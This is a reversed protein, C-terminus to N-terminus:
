NILRKEAMWKLSKTQWEDWMPSNVPLVMDDDQAHALFVPPTAGTVQKENSYFAVLESSPDPGLLNRKTGGHTLSGMTIVPYVLIAFDPRSSFWSVPDKAQPDGSDFHTAATSALHDGASFGMIGIRGPDHSKVPRHITIYANEDTFLGNGAPALGTWLPVTFPSFYNALLIDNFAPLNARYIAQHGAATPHQSDCTASDILVTLAPVKAMGGGWNYGGYAICSERYGFHRALLYGYSARSDDSAVWLSDAPRGQSDALGAGDGSLISDGVTLWIKHLLRIKIASGGEDVIFGTIRVSNPPVDGSYRDEFPSMGKIYLDIVPDTIGSSMLVTKEGTTLQHSRVDGGTITWAITPFRSPSEFKLHRTDVQLIVENTGTFKATLSAGCVSSSILGDQLVWNYPSLGSQVNKDSVPIITGFLCAARFLFGTIILLYFNRM